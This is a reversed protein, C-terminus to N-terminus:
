HRDRARRLRAFRTAVMSGHRDRARRLRAFRTAVMPVLRLRNDGPVVFALVIRVVVCRELAPPM